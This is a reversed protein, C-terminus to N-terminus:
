PPSPSPVDMMDGRGGTLTVPTKEGTETKQCGEITKAPALLFRPLTIRPTTNHIPLGSMWVPSAYMYMVAPPVRILDNENYDCEALGTQGARTSSVRNITSFFPNHQALIFSQKPTAANWRRHEMELDSHLVESPVATVRRSQRGTFCVV